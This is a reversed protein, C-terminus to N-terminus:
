SCSGVEDADFPNEVVPIPVALVSEIIRPSLYVVSGDTNTDTIGFEGMTM